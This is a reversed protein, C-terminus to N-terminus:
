LCEVGNPFIIRFLGSMEYKLEILPKIGLEDCLTLWEPLSMLHGTYTVGNRKQTLTEAQLQALTSSAITLSGGLRKTDDDHSLIFQRDGTVKIDSEVYEYGLEAGRRFAEETSEVGYGSGRHGVLVPKAQSALTATMALAILLIHKM